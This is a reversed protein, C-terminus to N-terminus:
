KAKEVATDKRPKAKVLFWILHLLKNKCDDGEKPVSLQTPSPFCLRKGFRDM